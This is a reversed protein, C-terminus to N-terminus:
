QVSERRMVSVASLEAEQLYMPAPLWSVDKFEVSLSVTVPDGFAASSPDPSVTIASDQLNIGGSSLYDKVTNRVDQTTSGDLVALRAGERTANTLMQQVMVMRGYEIMGFLLLIFIPAVVAFEM